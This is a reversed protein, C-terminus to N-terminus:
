VAAKAAHGELYAIWRRILGPDDGAHGLGANCSRCLLLRLKRTTHDHDICLVGRPRRRCLGCRGNQRALIVDYDVITLGYKRQYSLNRFYVAKEESTRKKGPLRPSSAPTPNIYRDVETDHTRYSEVYTAWRTLLEVDDHAIGIGFNCDCCLLGRIVGTVHDHDVFLSRGSRPPKLCSACAGNQKVVITKYNDDDLGYRKKRAYALMHSKYRQYLIEWNRARWAKHYEAFADKHKERYEKLAQKRGPYRAKDRARSIERQREKADDNNM